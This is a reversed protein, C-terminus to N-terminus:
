CLRLHEGEEASVCHVRARRPSVHPAPPASAPLVTFGPATEAVAVQGMLRCVFRALVAAAVGITRDRLCQPRVARLVRALRATSGWLVNPVPAVRATALASPQTSRM